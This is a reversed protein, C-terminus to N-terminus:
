VKVMCHPTACSHHPLPNSSFKECLNYDRVVSKWDISKMPDKAPSKSKRYSIQCRCSVIRHDSQIGEFSCYARSNKISNIWKKRVLIYDLQVRQGNPRRHNWLRNKPNQFRTNTAVLSHQEMLDKMHKGNRNSEDACTFLANTSGLQANLDGSLILLNHAPIVYVITSLEKYFKVVDEEPYKNHPSYCCLVTTLPNGHLTIEITRENHGM